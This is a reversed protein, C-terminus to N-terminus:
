GESAAPTEVTCEDSGSTSSDSKSTDLGEYEHCPPVVTVPMEVSEDGQSGSIEFRLTVVDGAKLTGTIHIAEDKSPTVIGGAPVTIPSFGKATLDATDGAGAISQITAENKEDNNSFSGVFTGSGEQASVITANLVDVSAAQDNTGAGPTYVRDTAYDFGCSTLVPAALLLAGAATLLRASRRLQM